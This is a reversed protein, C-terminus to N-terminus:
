DYLTIFGALLVRLMSIQREFHSVDAIRAFIDFRTMLMHFSIDDQLKHYFTHLM